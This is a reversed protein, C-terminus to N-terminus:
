PRTGTRTSSGNRSFSSATIGVLVVYLGMVAAKGSIVKTVTGSYNESSRTFVKNFGRFFWGLSRDLIRTLRDKPADHGRLLLAALPQGQAITALPMRNEVM